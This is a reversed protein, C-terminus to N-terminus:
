PLTEGGDVGISRIPATHMGTEISLLPRQDPCSDIGGVLAESATGDIVGKYCGADTLRQELAKIEEASMQAPDLEAARGSMVGLVALFCLPGIAAVSRL